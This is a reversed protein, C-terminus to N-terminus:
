PIAVAPDDMGARPVAVRQAGNGAHRHEPHNSRTLWLLPCLGHGATESGPHVTHNLLPSDLATSVVGRRGDMQVDALALPTIAGDAKIRCLSDCRAGDRRQVHM